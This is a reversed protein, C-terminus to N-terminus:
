SFDAGTIVGDANKDKKKFDAISDNVWEELTVFGDGNTDCKMVWGVRKEIMPDNPAASKSYNATAEERTVQGDKNADMAKFTAPKNLTFEAQTIQGDKNRDLYTYAQPIDQASAASAAVLSVVVIGVNVVKHM